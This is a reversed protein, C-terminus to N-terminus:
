LKPAVKVLYAEVVQTLKNDILNGDKQGTCKTDLIKRKVQDIASLKSVHELLYKFGSLKKRCVLFCVMFYWDFIQNLEMHGVYHVWWFLCNIYETFNLDMAGIYYIINTLDDITM